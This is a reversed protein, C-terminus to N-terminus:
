GGIFSMEIKKLGATESSRLESYRDERAAWVSLIAARIDDDTSGNRVLARLDHGQTAFLCTYM